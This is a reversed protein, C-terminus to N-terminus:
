AFICIPYFLAICSFYIFILLKFTESFRDFNIEKGQNEEHWRDINKQLDERFNILEKNRPALENVSKEFGIWFEEPSIDLDKLLEENIFKSLNESVKLNNIKIYKEQM